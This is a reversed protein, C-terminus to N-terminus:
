SKVRLHLDDLHFYYAAVHSCHLNCLGQGKSRYFNILALRFFRVTIPFHETM